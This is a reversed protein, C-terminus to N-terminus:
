PFFRSECKTVEGKKFYVKEKYMSFKFHASIKRFLKGETAKQLRNNGTKNEINICKGQLIKRM